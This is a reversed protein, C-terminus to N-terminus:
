RVLLMMGTGKVVLSGEGTLFDPYDAAAYTGPKLKTDGLVAKKVTLTKGNLDLVADATTVVVSSLKLDDVNVLARGYNSVELKVSKYDVVDDGTAIDSGALGTSVIDTTNQNLPSRNGSTMWIRMTGGKDREDGTQLYVTGASGDREPRTTNGQTRGSASIEGTYGSFDAGKETLKVAVRGGTGRWNSIFGGDARIKGVGEISGATIDIAGGTGGASNSNATTGDDNGNACIDGNNTLKGGIVLKLVGGSSACSQGNPHPVSCGPLHPAFVSDYSVTFRGLGQQDIWANGSSRGGHTSGPLVGKFGNNETNGEKRLGGGRVTITSNADISVDGTVTLNCIGYEPLEATQDYIQPLDQLGLRAGNVLTLNSAFLYPKRPAFTWKGDMTQTESTGLDLTGGDYRLVGYLSTASGEIAFVGSLGNALALATGEPISLIARHGLGIRDFTWDGDDNCPITAPRAFTQAPMNAVNDILLTGYTQSADKVFVTGASGHSDCESTGNSKFPEVTAKLKLSTYDVPTTSTSVVAVRGGCGKNNQEDTWGASASITGTGTVSNAKLYVSGAAAGGRLTLGSNWCDNRTDACIAGDVVADGTSVIYIAGGGIGITYAGSAPKVGMGIHIPEKVDDYPKMDGLWGGHAPKPTTVSGFNAQYYGKNTADIRGDTGVMFSGADIRIRYTENEKLDVLYDSINDWTQRSIPHTITGCEITMAGTVTLCTFAGKDPFVTDLTIAGSYGNRQTWSAVTSTADADWECNASSFNGDFLVNDSAIPARGLSWNGPNSALGDATASWTNYGDPFAVNAITVDITAPSFGAYKGAGAAVVVEIDEIITADVLPKVTLTASTEGAPITVDIPAEWTEGETGKGEVKATITYPVILAFGDASARSVTIEGAERQYENADKVKVLSLNGNYIVGAKNTAAAVDNEAFSYLQYTTDASLRSLDITATFSDNEVVPGVSFKVFTGNSDEALAGADTAAAKIVTDSVTYNGNAGSLTAVDLQPAGAVADVLVDDIQTGIRLEDARFFGGNSGYPGVVGMANPYVTDSIVDVEISDSEGGINAWSIPYQYAAVAQAGARVVEAGNAGTGISLEAYCIYTTDTSIGHIVEYNSSAGAVDTLMLSLNCGNSDKWIGFGIASPSKNQCLLSYDNGSPAKMVGFGYYGGSANSPETKVNLKGAAKSDISLLMRVFLKGSSVKLVDTALAHYMARLESKNEGNNTGISGGTSTFRADTLASPLSLGYYSGYVKIQSGGMGQWKATSTGIASVNADPYSSATGQNGVAEGINYDSKAFGEYVLVDARASYVLSMGVAIAAAFLFSLKKM